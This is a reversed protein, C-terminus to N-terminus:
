EYYKEAKLDLERCACAVHEYGNSKCYRIFKHCKNCEVAREIKKWKEVIENIEQATYPVTPNKWHACFNRFGTDTEFNVLLRVISHNDKLQTKMRFMFSQLLDSLTYENRRNYKVSSELNECLSQLIWELYVGFTRGAEAPNDEGILKAIREYSSLGPKVRPGITYDWGYFHKRVWQPFRRQLLDLWVSDHTLLMIQYDAFYDALVDIVRPRKYADFSNIVDDLIIFKFDTNFNKISSLFVSLGFSNIQSESLIKHAPCVPSGAFVIELEVAKDKGPLLVLRPDDIVACDSELKKFCQVVEASISDFAVQVSKKADEIYDNKIQEFAESMKKLRNLKTNLQDWSVFIKQLSSIRQFNDVLLKRTKDEELIRTQTTVSSVFDFDADIDEVPKQFLQRHKDFAIELATVRDSFEQLEKPVELTNFVACTQKVKQHIENISSMLLTKSHILQERKRKLENLNAHKSKIHELLNGEYSQDCLPCRDHTELSALVKIGAEYLEILLYKSLGKEDKKFVRFSKEFASIDSRIDTLPFFRDIANKLSKWTNLKKSREDKELSTRLEAIGADVDSMDAANKINHAAFTININEIFSRTDKPEEGSVDQYEVKCREKDRELQECLHELRGSCTQLDNQVELVNAFGMFRSITAYKDAKTMYVFGTLDRYRLHCPYPIRRRLENINGTITPQTIRAPDYELTIKGIREDVFDLEVCSIGKEVAEIHPYCQAGAGERALHDIKGTCLWEWADVISSKGSGNPGYIMMSQVSNDKAFDLELPPTNIGRFGSITIKAVEAM